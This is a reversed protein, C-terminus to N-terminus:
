KMLVIQEDMSGSIERFMVTNADEESPFLSVTPEQSSAPASLLRGLAIGGAIGVLVVMVALIPRFRFAVTGAWGPQHILGAEQEMRATLRSYFWPDEPIVRDKQIFDLTKQVREQNQHDM